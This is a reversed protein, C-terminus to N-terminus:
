QNSESQNPTYLQEQYKSLLKDTNQLIEKLSSSFRSLQQPDIDNKDSLNSTVSIKKKYKLLSVKGSM